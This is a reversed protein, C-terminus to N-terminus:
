YNLTECRMEHRKAILNTHNSRTIYFIDSILYKYRKTQKCDSFSVKQAIIYNQWPIFCKNESPGLLLYLLLKFYGTAYWQLNRLNTVFFIVSASVLAVLMAVSFVTTSKVGLCPLFAKDLVSTLRMTVRVLLESHDTM